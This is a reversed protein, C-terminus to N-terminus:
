IGFYARIRSLVTTEAEDPAAARLIALRDRREMVKAALASALEPHDHLIPDLAEKGIEIATVDTLAVVDATRTEGTLLAMEGFVSGEGLQAAEEWGETSDDAIRVSVTGEHVIFMSHGEAGARLITEGRSYFHLAAADALAEHAEGSLPSLVRVEMLRQVLRDRPIEHHPTKQPPKYPQYSRVPFPISIGNRKMAYWVAKRIDADIRDRQSYDRTFYKIEYNVSSDGFGAVRALCPMERAVGEVNATARTLVEIVTVPPHHYDIPVNLIRANLNQHPFVEFRERALVSNPVIVVNNTFTRIRTARWTLGEIVGIFEGSRLVDGVEFSDEMHLAIGSFLNGLTDQLALGLIAALVASTTLIGKVNAGPFVYSILSLLLAFYLILAVLDRLLRPVAVNRRRSLLDFVVSDFVRVILFVLSVYAAFLLLRFDRGLLPEYPRALRPNLQLFSYLAFLIASVTLPGLYRSRTARGAM